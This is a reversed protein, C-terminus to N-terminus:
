GFLHYKLYSRAGSERRPSSVFFRIPFVRKMDSTYAAFRDPVPEEAYVFPRLHWKGRADIFHLRTPSAFPLMRNQAAPDYPSFFAAGAVLIHIALLFAWVMYRSPYRVHSPKASGLIWRM